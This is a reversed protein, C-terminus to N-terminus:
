NLTVNFSGLPEYKIIKLSQVFSKLNEESAEIFAKHDTTVYLLKIEGSTVLTKLENKILNYDEFSVVWKM